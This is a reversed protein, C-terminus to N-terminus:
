ILSASVTSPATENTGDSLTVSYSPVVAGGAYVFRIVGGDVEAQMFGTIATNPDDRHAFYGGTVQFM